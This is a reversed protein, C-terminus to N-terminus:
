EDLSKDFIQSLPSLCTLFSIKALLDPDAHRKLWDDDNDDEDFM